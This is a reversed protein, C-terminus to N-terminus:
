EVFSLRCRSVECKEESRGHIIVRNDPHAALDTATQKGIGDTSGTILITRKFSSQPMPIRPEFWCRQAAWINRSKNFWFRNETSRWCIVLSSSLIPSFLSDENSLNTGTIRYCSLSSAFPPVWFNLSFVTQPHIRITYLAPIFSFLSSSRLLSYEYLSM